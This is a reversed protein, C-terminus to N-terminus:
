EEVDAGASSQSTFCPTPACGNRGASRSKRRVAQRMFFPRRDKSRRGKSKYRFPLRKARRRSRGRRSREAPETLRLRTPRGCRDADEATRRARSRAAEAALPAADEEFMQAMVDVGQAQLDAEEPSRAVNVKVTVAVEPHLAIKVEHVGIAKIPRDLM